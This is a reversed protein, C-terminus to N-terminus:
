WRRASLLDAARSKSWFCRLTIHQLVVVPMVIPGHVPKPIAGFLVEKLLLAAAMAYGATM